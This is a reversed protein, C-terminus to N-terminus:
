WYKYSFLQLYIDYTFLEKTYLVWFVLMQIPWIKKGDVEKLQSDHKM